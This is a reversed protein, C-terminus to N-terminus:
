YYLIETVIKQIKGASNILSLDLPKASLVHGQKKLELIKYSGFQSKVFANYEADTM